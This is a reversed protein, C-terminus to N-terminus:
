DEWFGRVYGTRQLIERMGLMATYTPLVYVTEAPEAARLATELARELDNEVRIRSVDVGAYKLRVAMDEARLGACVAVNVRDELRELEADWLWSVDTGDAFLDNIAILLTRRGPAALITRLVETFGVPNKVLAMFLQRDEVQIREL